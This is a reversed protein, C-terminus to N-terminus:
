ILFEIEVEKEFNVVLKAKGWQRKKNAKFRGQSINFISIIKNVTETHKWDKNNYNTTQHKKSDTRGYYVGGYWMLRYGLGWARALIDHDESGYGISGLLEDYGGLEKIFENKYFGLRGRLMRKGKGFISKEPQINALKNVYTAFGKKTFSDADVSNIIDGTAIKFGINRSHSMNYKTPEETRCYILRGDKILDSFTHKIWNGTNEYCNYDVIVFELNPYDENDKINRPLTIMLDKLRGMCTTVISIKNFKKPEPLDEKKWINQNVYKWYGDKIIKRFDNM